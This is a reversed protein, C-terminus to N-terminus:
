LKIYKGFSSCPFSHPLNNITQQHCIICKWLLLSRFSSLSFFSSSLSIHMFDVFPPPPIFTAPARIHTDKDKKTRWLQAQHAWLWLIRIRLPIFVAAQHWSTFVGPPLYSSGVLGCFMYSKWSSKRAQETSHSAHRTPSSAINSFNEKSDEKEFGCSIYTGRTAVRSLCGKLM